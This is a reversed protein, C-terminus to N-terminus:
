DTIEILTSENSEELMKIKENKKKLYREKAKQSIAEKNKERYNKKKQLITEVNEDYYAKKKQYITERNEDYYAKKHETIQAKNRQNYNKKCEAFYEYNDKQYEKPTRGAISHNICVSTQKFEKTIEGEKRRLQEVNDCSYEEILYINYNGREIIPFSSTPGNRKGNKWRKFDSVHQALRRALTCCTSGIYVEDTENCVIKYIKGNSYDPM